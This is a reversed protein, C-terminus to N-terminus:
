LVIIINLYNLDPKSPRRTTNWAIYVCGITQQDLQFFHKNFLAEYKDLRDFQEPTMDYLIGEVIGGQKPMINAFSWFSFSNGANFVLTYNQLTYPTGTKLDPEGFSEVRNKLRNIDINSGYSFYKVTLM